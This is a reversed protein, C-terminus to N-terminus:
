FNVFGSMSIVSCCQILLLLFFIKYFFWSFRELNKKKILKAFTIPWVINMYLDAMWCVIYRLMRYYLCAEFVLLFLHVSMYVILCLNLCTKTKLLFCQFFKLCSLYVSIGAWLSLCIYFLTIFTLM